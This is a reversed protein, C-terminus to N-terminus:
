SIMQKPIVEEDIYYVETNLVVEKVTRPDSGRSPGGHLYDSDYRFVAQNWVELDRTKDIIFSREYKWNPKSFCYSLGLM